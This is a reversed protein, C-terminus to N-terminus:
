DIESKRQSLRSRNGEGSNEKNLSVAGLSSSVAGDNQNSKREKNFINMSPRQSSRNQGSNSPRKKLVTEDADYPTM